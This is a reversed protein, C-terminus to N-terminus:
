DGPRVKVELGRLGRQDLGLHGALSGGNRALELRDLSNFLALVQGPRSMAYTRSLGNITLGACQVLASRGVLFAEVETRSLNTQLNGFHDVGMVQGMLSGGELRPRPWDLLVPDDLRSGVRSPELGRALHAAVPAFVDRGHFTPSVPDRWFEQNTIHYARARPDALLAATFIGNDPGVWLMGLAEAVLGRRDSGVGPDVVAWHITGAPFVGLAQELVLAGGLVDQPALDHCLDVLRASPCIGLMVGKVLGVFPGAGFDSTLTILPPSLM